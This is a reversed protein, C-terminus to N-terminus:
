PFSVENNHSQETVHNQGGGRCYRVSKRTEHAGQHSEQLGETKGKWFTHNFSDRGCSAEQRATEQSSLCVSVTTKSLKVVPWPFFPLSLVVISHERCGM